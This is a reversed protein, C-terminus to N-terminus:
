NNVRELHYAAETPHPRYGTVDARTGVVNTYYTLWGIPVDRQLIAQVEDYIRKREETNATTRGQELLSDVEPNAYGSCMTAESSHAFDTLRDPDPYWLVSNSWLVMGFADSQARERITASEMTRVSVDFGVEGLKTQLVQAIPSLLPRSEYTWIDVDLSVGDRQRTGDVQEWGAATLLEASREPAYEYPELDDNAWSTVEPPFPGTAASGVGELLSEVLMERDIAHMVAQRVRRDSFPETTTDFVLFRSRPIEYTYAKLNEVNRLQEVSQNPLIRAMDLEDNKLKLRRTQSDTVGEYVVRDIEPIKGYYAPNATATITRGPEWSAFEFPGTGVPETVDGDSDTSSPAIIGTRGRTLHAPLPAFPEDTTLSVTRKNVASVSEIPLAALANSDFARNLSFVVADATVPTGDHFEADDRLEFVWTEDDTQEWSTALGATISTDYDVTLLPEIVTIRRWLWGNIAPDLSDPTWPSGVRFTREGDASQETPSHGSPAGGLCGSVGGISAVVGQLVRRRVSDVRRRARGADETM